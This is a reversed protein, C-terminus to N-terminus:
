HQGWKDAALKSDAESANSTLGRCFFLLCLCSFVLFSFVFLMCYFPEFCLVCLMALFCCLSFDGPEERPHSSCIESVRKGGRGTDKFSVRNM